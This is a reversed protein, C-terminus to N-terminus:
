NEEKACDDKGACEKCPGATKEQGTCESCLGYLVTQSSNVSFGHAAMLHDKLSDMHVCELHMLKGCRECKLHFHESCEKGGEILQFCASEGQGASYRRVQGEAV